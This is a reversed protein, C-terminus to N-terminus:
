QTKNRIQWLLCRRMTERLLVAENLLDLRLKILLLDGSKM